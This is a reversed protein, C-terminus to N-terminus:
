VLSIIKEDIKKLSQITPLRSFCLRLCPGSGSSSGSWPGLSCSFTLVLCDLDTLLIWIQLGPLALRWSDPFGPCGFPYVPSPKQWASPSSYLKQVKHPMLYGFGLHLTWPQLCDGLVLLEWHDSVNCQVLKAQDLPNYWKNGSHSYSIDITSCVRWPIDHM